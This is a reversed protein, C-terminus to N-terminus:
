YGRPPTTAFPVCPEAQEARDATIHSQDADPELSPQRGIVVGAHTPHQKKTRTRNPPPEPPPPPTPHIDPPPEPPPLPIPYTEPIATDPFMEIIPEDSPLNHETLLDPDEEVTEPTINNKNNTGYQPPPEAPPLPKPHIKTHPSPLQWAREITNRAYTPRATQASKNNNNETNPPTQKSRRPKRPVSRDKWQQMDIQKRGLGVHEWQRNEGESPDTSAGKTPTM